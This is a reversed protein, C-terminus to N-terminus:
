ERDWECAYICMITLQLIKQAQEVDKLTSRMNNGRRESVNLEVHVDLYVTQECEWVWEDIIYDHM